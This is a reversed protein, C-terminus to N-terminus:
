TIRATERVEMWRISNGNEIVSDTYATTSTCWHVKEVNVYLDMAADKRTEESRKSTKNVSLIETTDDNNNKEKELLAIANDPKTSLRNLMVIM